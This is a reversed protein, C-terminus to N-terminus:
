EGPDVCQVDPVAPDRFDCRVEVGERSWESWIGIKKGARYAGSSARGGGVYWSEWLGAELGLEHRGRVMVRGDAETILHEGHAQDLLYETYMRQGGGVYVVLEPGKKRGDPLACWTRSYEGAVRETQRRSEMPCAIEAPDFARHPREPDVSTQVDHERAAMLGPEDRWGQRLAVSSGERPPALLGLLGAAAADAAPKRTAELADREEVSGCRGPSYPLTDIFFCHGYERCAQSAQCHADTTTQCVGELQVCHGHEACPDACPDDQALAFSVFPLMLSLLNM